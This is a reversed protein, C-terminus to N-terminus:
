KQSHGGDIGNAKDNLMFFPFYIDSLPNNGDLVLLWGHNINANFSSKNTGRCCLFCYLIAICAIISVITSIDQREPHFARHIIDACGILPTQM